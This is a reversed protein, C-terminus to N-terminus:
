FADKWFLSQSDVQSLTGFVQSIEMPASKDDKKMMRLSISKSFTEARKRNFRLQTQQCMAQQHWTDQQMNRSIAVRFEFAFIQFVIAKKEFNQEM